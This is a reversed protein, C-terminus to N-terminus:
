ENGSSPKLLNKIYNLRMKIIGKHNHRELKGLHDIQKIAISLLHNDIM